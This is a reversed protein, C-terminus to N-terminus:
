NPQGFLFFLNWCCSQMLSTRKQKTPLLCSWDLVYLCLNKKMHLTFVRDEWVVINDRRWLFCLQSCSPSNRTKPKWFTGQPGSCHAATTPPLLPEVAQLHVLLIPPAPGSSATCSSLCCPLYSIKNTNAAPLLTTVCSPSHFPRDPTSCDLLIGTNQFRPDSAPQKNWIPIIFALVVLIRSFCVPSGGTCIRLGERTDFGFHFSNWHSYLTYSLLLVYNLVHFIFFLYNTVYRCKYALIRFLFVSVYM